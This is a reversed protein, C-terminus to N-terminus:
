HMPNKSCLFGAVSFARESEVSRPWITLIYDYAKQLHNGRTAGSEFLSMEKQIKSTISEVRIPLTQTAALRKEM